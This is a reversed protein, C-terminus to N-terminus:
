FFILVFRVKEIILIKRHDLFIFHAFDHSRDNACVIFFALEGADQRFVHNVAAAGWRFPM